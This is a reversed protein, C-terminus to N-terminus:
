IMYRKHLDFKIFFIAIATRNHFGYMPICADKSKGQYNAEFGFCKEVASRGNEKEVLVPRPSVASSM